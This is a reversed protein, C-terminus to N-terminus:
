PTSRLIMRSYRRYLKEAHPLDSRWHWGKYDESSRETPYKARIRARAEAKAAARKTVFTKRATPAFYVPQTRVQIPANM